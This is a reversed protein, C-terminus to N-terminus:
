NSRQKQRPVISGLGGDVGLTQGTIWSAESSLLFAMAAAIDDPEGLRGLIHMDQSATATAENEWIKRTMESKVLGPAVANFRIQRPGYTASASRIMADLGGKAAAIAEHNALGLQAAATSCFVVSGGNGRMAKSAERVIAFSSVLNVQLTDLLEEDTTLHAPKLLVSGVCSAIGTIAPMAEAAAKVAATIAAPDKADVVATGAPGIEEAVATLKEEDRGILFLSAGRAALRKALAHGVSGTAGFLLIGESDNAM